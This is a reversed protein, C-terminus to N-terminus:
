GSRSKKLVGPLVWAVLLLGLLAGASGGGKGSAVACGGESTTVTRIIRPGPRFDDIRDAWEPRSIGTDRIDVSLLEEPQERPLDGTLGQNSSLDLVELSELDALEQPLEGRLNRGDLSLERVSMEELTVGQWREAFPTTFWRTKQPHLGAWNWRAGCTADYLAVLADCEGEKIGRADECDFQTEECEEPATDETEAPQQPAQPQPAGGGGGIPATPVVPQESPTETTDTTEKEEETEEGSTSPATLSLSVTQGATWGPNDYWWYIDYLDQTAARVPLATGDVNLTLEGLAAKIEAGTHGEVALYLKNESTWYVSDVRCTGKRCNTSEYEFMNKSLASLCSHLNDRPNKNYDDCGFKFHDTGVTLTASWITTQAGGTPPPAPPLPRPPEDDDTVTLTVADPATVAMGSVRGSIAVRADAADAANDVATVTVTPSETSNAPITLTTGGLRVKGSPSVSLTVTVVSSVSSPLTAKLTTSNGSGSENIRRSGLVLSVKPKPAARVTIVPSLAYLRLTLIGFLPNIASSTGASLPNGALSGTGVATAGLYATARKTGDADSGTWVTGAYSAETETKGAISDWSGDYFDAYNDAAKAGGLWYIPADTDSSETDTNDRADVM